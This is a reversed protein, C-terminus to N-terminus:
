LRIDGASLVAPPLGAGFNARWAIIGEARVPGVIVQEDAVIRNVRYAAGNRVASIKALDAESFSGNRRVPGHGKGVPNGLRLMICPLPCDGPYFQTLAVKLNNPLVLHWNQIPRAPPTSLGMLM